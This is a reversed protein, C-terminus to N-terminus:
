YSSGSGLYLSSPGFTSKYNEWHVSDMTEWNGKLYKWYDVGEINITAYNLVRDAGIFVARTIRLPSNYRFLSIDGSILNDGTTYMVIKNGGIVSKWEKTPPLIKKPTNNCYLLIAMISGISEIRVEENGYYLSVDSLKAYNKVINDKMNRSQNYQIVNVLTLIDLKGRADYNHIAKQHPSLNNKIINDAIIDISEPTPRKVSIRGSKYKYIPIRRKKKLTPPPPLEDIYAM